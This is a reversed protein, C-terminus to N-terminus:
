SLLLECARSRHNLLYERRYELEARNDTDVPVLREVTPCPYQECEACSIFVRGFACNRIDCTKCMPAMTASQSHCDHCLMEEPQYQHDESSYELALWIRQGQDNDRTAQYVPCEACVQGCYSIKAM